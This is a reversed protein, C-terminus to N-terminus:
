PRPLEASRVLAVVKLDSRVEPTTDDVLVSTGVLRAGCAEVAQRAAKAQSGTEIWDDVLLVRDASSLVRALRITVQRGRWDPASMVEVKPGPHVNGPKRALVLGVGLEQACLAGLVFGRAELAVVVTIDAERFPAALAPGLRSLTQADLFVAAFDAHGNTWRFTRLLAAHADRAPVAGRDDAGAGAATM